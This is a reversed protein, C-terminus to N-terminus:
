KVLKKRREVRNIADKATHVKASLFKETKCSDVIFAGTVPKSKTTMTDDREKTINNVRNM